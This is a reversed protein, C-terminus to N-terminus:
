PKLFFCFLWSKRRVCCMLNVYIHSDVIPWPMRGAMLGVLESKRQHKSRREGNGLELSWWQRLEGVGIEGYNEGAGSLNSGHDRSHPVFSYRYHTESLPNESPTSLTSFPHPAALPSLLETSNARTPISKQILRRRSLNM